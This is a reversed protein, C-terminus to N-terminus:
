GTRSIQANTRNIAGVLDSGRLLLNVQGGMEMGGGTVGSFSPAAVGGFLGSLLNTFVNGGQTAAGVQAGAIAGGIGPALLNALLKSLGTAALRATIRAIADLVTKGFEKFTFKGSTLFDTFSKQLPRFFGEELTSRVKLITDEIRSLEGIKSVEDQIQQIKDVSLGSPAAGVPRVPAELFEKRRLKISDKISTNIIRRSAAFAKAVKADDEIITGIGGVGQTINGISLKAADKQAQAQDKLSQVLDQTKKDYSSIGQLATELKSIYTDNVANLNNYEITVSKLAAAQSQEKQILVDLTRQQSESLTQEQLKFIRERTLALDRATSLVKTELELQKAGNQNLVASIANEQVKLKIYELRAKANNNILQIGTATLANEESIGRVIDPQIKKLEAYADQRDKLPRSLDSLTKTLIGIKISETTTNNIGENLAKNFTNQAIVAAGNSSTLANVANSLSGYKQIAFTIASTVASFALFLGAPGILSSGLEKLAGVTGGAKTRLEGFSQIVGPLNNQIGIFGFPLDQAVLSLNTLAIRSQKSFDQIQRGAQELGETEFPLVISM